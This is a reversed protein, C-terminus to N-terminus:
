CSCSSFSDLGDNNETVMSLEVRSEACATPSNSVEPKLSALKVSALKAVKKMYIPEPNKVTGYNVLAELISERIGQNEAVRFSYPRKNMRLMALNRGFVRNWPDVRNRVSFGFTVIGTTKEFTYAICVRPNPDTANHLYMFKMGVPIPLPQLHRPLTSVFVQPNM